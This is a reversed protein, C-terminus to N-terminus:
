ESVTPEWYTGVLLKEFLMGTGTFLLQSNATVWTLEYLAVNTPQKKITLTGNGLHKRTGDIWTCTYEGLFSDSGIELSRDKLRDKLVCCETFPGGNQDHMFKVTLCGDGENRFVFAGHTM